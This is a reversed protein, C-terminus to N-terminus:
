RPKTLDITVLDLVSWTEQIMDDKVRMMTLGSATIPRNTPAMGNWEGKWTGSLTWQASVLTGEAVVNGIKVSADPFATRIATVHERLADKGTIQRGNVAHLVHSDAVLQEVASANDAAIAEYLYSLILARNSIESYPKAMQIQRYYEEADIEVAEHIVKGGRFVWVTKGVLDVTRGPSIKKDPGIYNGRLQWSFTATDGVGMMDRLTVNYDTFQSRIQNVRNKYEALGVTKGEDAPGFRTVQPDMLQDLYTFDGKSWIENLYKVVKERHGQNQAASTSFVVAFLFAVTLISLVKKM